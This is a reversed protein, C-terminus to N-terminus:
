FLGQVAANLRMCSLLEVTKRLIENTLTKAVNHQEINVLARYYAKYAYQACKYKEYEKAIQLYACNNKHTNANLNTNGNYVNALLSIIRTLIPESPALRDIQILLAKEIDLCSIRDSLKITTNLSTHVHQHNGDITKNGTVYDFNTKCVSCTIFNCGWSRIVPLRCTPCKILTKVFQVSDINEQTCKHDVLKPMECENCFVTNCVICTGTADDLKGPCCTNFCKKNMQVLSKRVNTRSAVNVAKLKSSLAYKITLAIAIPFNTDIFDVKQKRINEMMSAHNVKNDLEDKKERVFHDFCLQAYVAVSDNGLLKVQSLLYHQRCSIAPCRPIEKEGASFELLAGGCDLCICSTCSPDCCSLSQLKKLIPSFCIICCIEDM